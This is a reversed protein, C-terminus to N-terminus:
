GYSFAALLPFVAVALAIGRAIFTLVFLHFITMLLWFSLMLYASEVGLFCSFFCSAGHLVFLAVSMNCRSCLRLGCSTYWHNLTPLNIVRRFSARSLDVMAVLTKGSMAVNDVAFVFLVSICRLSCLEVECDALM